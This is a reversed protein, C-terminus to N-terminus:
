KTRASARCDPLLETSSASVGGTDGREAFHGTARLEICGVAHIAGGPHPSPQCSTCRLRSARGDRSCGLSRLWGRFRENYVRGIGRRARLRSSEPDYGLRNSRVARGERASKYAPKGDVKKASFIPPTQEMDGHFFEACRASPRVDAQVERPTLLSVRPM